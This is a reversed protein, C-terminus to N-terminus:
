KKTKSINYKPLFYIIRSNRLYFLRSKRFIVRLVISLHHKWIKMVNNKYHRCVFLVQMLLISICLFQFEAEVILKWITNSSKSELILGFVITFYTPGFFFLQLSKIPPSPHPHTTSSFTIKWRGFALLTIPFFNRSFTSSEAIEPVYWLIAWSHM